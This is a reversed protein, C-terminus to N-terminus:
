RKIINKIFNPHAYKIDVKQTLKNSIDITLNKNEVKLLYLGNGLRKILTLNFENLYNNLNREYKFKVILTDTVGLVIGKENTYYDISSSDRAISISPELLVKNNNQYYYNDNAFCVQIILLIILFIHKM